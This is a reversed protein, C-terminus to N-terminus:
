SPPVDFTDDMTQDMLSGGGLLADTAQLQEIDQAGEFPEGDPGLSSLDLSMDAGLDGIDGVAADLNDGTPQLSEDLTDEPVPTPSPPQFSVSLPHPKPTAPKSEEKPVVAESEARSVPTTDPVVSNTAEDQDIEEDGEVVEPEDPLPALPQDTESEDDSFQQRKETRMWRFVKLTTGAPVNEPLTWVKEWCPVPQM